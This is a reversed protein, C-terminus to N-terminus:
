NYVFNNKDFYYVSLIKCVLKLFTNFTHDILMLCFITYYSSFGEYIELIAARIFYIFEFSSCVSVLKPSYIRHYNNRTNICCTSLSTIMSHKAIIM